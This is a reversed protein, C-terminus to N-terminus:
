VLEHGADQLATEAEETNGAPVLIVDSDFTSLVFVPIGRASLPSVVAQVVGTMGFPIPGEIYWATWPGDVDAGPPAVAPPCVISVESRTRTVSLVPAVVTFIDRPVPRSPDLRAVVFEGTVRSLRLTPAPPQPVIAWRNRPLSVASAAM